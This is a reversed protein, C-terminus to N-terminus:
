TFVKTQQKTGTRGNFNDVLGQIEVVKGLLPAAEPVLELVKSLHQHAKDLDRAAREDEYKMLYANFQDISKQLWVVAEKDTETTKREKDMLQIGVNLSALGSLTGENQNAVYVWLQTARENDAEYGRTGRLHYATNFMAYLHGNAAAHDRWEKGKRLDGRAILLCALMEQARHNEQEASMSLWRVAEENNEAVGYTGHTDMEGLWLQAKHHGEEAARTLYEVFKVDDNDDRAQMAAQWAVM